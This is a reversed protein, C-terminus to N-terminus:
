YPHEYNGNFHTSTVALKVQFRVFLLRALGGILSKNLSSSYELGFKSCTKHAVEFNGVHKSVIIHNDQLLNDSFSLFFFFFFFLFFSLFSFFLM